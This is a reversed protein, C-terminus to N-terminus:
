IYQNSLVVENIENDSVFPAQFKTKKGNKSKIIAEGSGKLWSSGKINIFEEQEVSALDFTICYDFKDIFKSNVYNKLYSNTAYILHIGVYKGFELIKNFVSLSDKMKIINAGEDVFIFIHQWNEHNDKNYGDITRHNTKALTMIRSDLVKLLYILLDYGKLTSSHSKGGLLHNIGDYEGLEIKKPDIMVFKVDSSSNKYMLSVIIDDILISKGTGTTGTIFIGSSNKLDVYINENKNWGIPVTLKEEKFELECLEKITLDKKNKM